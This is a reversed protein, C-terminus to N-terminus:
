WIPLFYTCFLVLSVNKAHSMSKQPLCVTLIKWFERNKLMNAVIAITTCDGFTM